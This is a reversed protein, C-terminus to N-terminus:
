RGALDSAFYRPGKLERIRNIEGTKDRVVVKEWGEYLHVPAM